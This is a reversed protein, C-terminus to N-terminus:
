AELRYDEAHHDLSPHVSCVGRGRVVEFACLSGSSGNSRSGL